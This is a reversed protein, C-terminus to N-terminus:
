AIFVRPGFVRLHNHAVINRAGHLIGGANDKALIHLFSASFEDIIRGIFAYHGMFHHVMPKAIQDGALAPGVEGEILRKGVIAFVEPKFVAIAAVKGVVLAHILDTAIHVLGNQLIIGM